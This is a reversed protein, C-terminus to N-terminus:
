IVQLKHVAKRRPKLSLHLCNWAPFVWSPISINRTIGANSDDWMHSTYRPNFLIDCASTMYQRIQLSSSSRCSIIVMYLRKKKHMHTHKQLFDKWHFKLFTRSWYSWAFMCSNRTKKKETRKKGNKLDWKIWRSWISNSWMDSYRRPELLGGHCCVPQSPRLM